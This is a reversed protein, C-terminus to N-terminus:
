KSAIKRNFRYMICLRVIMLSVLILTIKKLRFIRDM